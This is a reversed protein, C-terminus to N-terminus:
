LESTSAVSTVIVSVLMKEVTCNPISAFLKIMVVDVMLEPTETM